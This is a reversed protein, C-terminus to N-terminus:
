YNRKPCDINERYRQTSLKSRERLVILEAESKIIRDKIKRLKDKEQEKVKNEKKERWRKKKAQDSLKNCSTLNDKPLDINIDQIKNEKKRKRDKFKINEKMPYSINERHRQMSLKTRERLVISEAESKTIRDKRKRLRDKEQEKVKNEKKERWMKKKAQNTTSTTEAKVQKCAKMENSESKSLYSSPAQM